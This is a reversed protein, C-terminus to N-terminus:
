GLIRVKGAGDIFPVSLIDYNHKKITEFDTFLFRIPAISHPGCALHNVYAKRITEAHGPTTTITLVQFGPIGFQKVHDRNRFGQGYVVMKRLFSNGKFFARGKLNKPMKPAVTETSRDIEVFLYRYKKDAPANLYKLACFGDWQTGEIDHWGYWDVRTTFTSPMKTKELLEPKTRKYIEDSYQFEVGDRAIASMRLAIMFRTNELTHQIFTAKTKDASAKWRNVRVSLGFHDKLERAGKNGLAYPKSFSGGGTRRIREHQPLRSVYEADMLARLRKGVREASRHPLLRRMSHADVIGHRYLALFMERDDDTVSVNPADTALKYHKTGTM